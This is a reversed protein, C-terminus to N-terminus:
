IILKSIEWAQEFSLHPKVATWMILMQRDTLISKGKHGDSILEHLIWSVNEKPNEISKKFWKARLEKKLQDANTLAKTIKM